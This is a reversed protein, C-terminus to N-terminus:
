PAAAKATTEGEVVASGDRLKLAGDVVVRDGEQAGAAIEVWGPIRRGIQVETRKAIGDNVIYTYQKGQEPILAREPAILASRADNALAITVFMGPSLRGDTNAFQARIRVSRTATDIRPDVTVIKGKFQVGPYVSTTAAIALGPQLAPFLAEPMAFDVKVISLDDLTTIATGPAVLSGLSVQRLGVRGDFPARVITDSLRAKAAAVRAEDARMEALLQELASKSVIQSDGLERSREYQSRSNSLAAEAVALDAAAKAGDFEVLVQGRRVQQGEQFVIRTLINSSQSTVEVAENARVTGVAEVRQAISERKLAATSVTMAPMGMSAGAPRNAGGASGTGRAASAGTNVPAAHNSEYLAWGLSLVTITVLVPTVLRQLTM